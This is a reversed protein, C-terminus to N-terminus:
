ILPASDMKRGERVCAMLKQQQNSGFVTKCYQRNRKKSVPNGGHLHAFESTSAETATDQEILVLSLQKNNKMNM